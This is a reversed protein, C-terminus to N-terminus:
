INVVHYQIEQQYLKPDFINSEKIVVEHQLGVTSMEEQIGQFLFYIYKQHLEHNKKIIYACAHKKETNRNLVM